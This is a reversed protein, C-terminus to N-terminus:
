KADTPHVSVAPSHDSKKRLHFPVETAKQPAFCLLRPESDPRQKKIHEVIAEGQARSSVAFGLRDLGLEHFRLLKLSSAGEFGFLSEGVAEYNMFEHDGHYLIDSTHVFPTRCGESFALSPSERFSVVEGDVGGWLTGGEFAALSAFTVWNFRAIPQWSGKEHRYLTQADHAHLLGEASVFAGRITPAPLPIASFIGDLYHVFPAGHDQLLWMEDNKGPFLRPSYPSDPVKLQVWPTLDVLRSKGEKDWVEAAPASTSCLNGILFVTGGRTSGFFRSSVASTQIPQEYVGRGERTCGLQEAPTPRRLLAPGAITSIQLGGRASDYHALLTTEGVQALGIFAALSSGSFVFPAGGALLFYQLDGGESDSSLLAGVRDPWRGGLLHISYTASSTPPITAPLWAIGEPTIRGAHQPEWVLLAGEIPQVQSQRGGPVRAFPEPAVVPVLGQAAAPLTAAPGRIRPTFSPFPAAHVLAGSSAAAPAPTAM